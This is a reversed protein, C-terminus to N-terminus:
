LRTVKFGQAKLQTILGHKEPLHLAGVAIFLSEKTLRPTLQEVWNNNRQTLMVEESFKGYDSDDFSLQYYKNLTDMDGKKWANVLDLFYHEVDKLQALSTSIMLDGKVGLTSLMELQQELTELEGIPKNHKKAYAIVQKDIGYDEQYGLNQYEIQMMTVMVAWPALNDFLAINIQKAAFYQKLAEFHEASIEDKLTRGHPLTMFPMSRRQVEFANLAEINVEVIVEDTQEIAQTIKKPLGDMSKDGVHVTGFLYSTVGAKEVKFLAPSLAASHSSFGILFALLLAFFVRNVTSFMNNGKLFTEGVYYCTEM